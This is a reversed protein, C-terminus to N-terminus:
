RTQQVVRGSRTTRVLEDQVNEREREYLSFSLKEFLSDSNKTVKKSLVNKDILDIKYLEQKIAHSHDESNSVYFYVFSYFILKKLQNFYNQLRDPPKRQRQRPTIKPPKINLSTDFHDSQKDGIPFKNLELLFEGQDVLDTYISLQKIKFIPFFYIIESLIQKHFHTEITRLFQYFKKRDTEEISTKKTTLALELQNMRPTQIQKKMASVRADLNDTSLNTNKEPISLDVTLKNLDEKGTNRPLSKPRPTKQITHKWESNSDRTEPTNSNLTRSQNAKLIKSINEKEDSYNEESQKTNEDKSDCTSISECVTIETESAQKKLETKIKLASDGSISETFNAGEIVVNSIYSFNQTPNFHLNTIKNQRARCPAIVHGPKKCNRRTMLCTNENTPVFNHQYKRYGNNSFPSNRKLNIKFNNTPSTTNVNKPSLMHQNKFKFEQSAQRLPVMASTSNIRWNRLLNTLKVTQELAEFSNPPPQASLRM